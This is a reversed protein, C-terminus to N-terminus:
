FIVSFYSTTNNYSGTYDHSNKHEIIEASLKLTRALQLILKITAPSDVQKLSFAEGNLDKILKRSIEDNANAKEVDTYHTFDTSELVFINDKNKQLVKILKDFNRAKASYSLLIPAIKAKPFFKKIYNAEVGISHEGVFCDNEIKPGTKLIQGLLTHDIELEGFMTAIKADSAVFKQKCREFHDPGVVVFTEINPRAIQLQYYFNDLLPSATPLHHSTIGILPNKTKLKQQVNKEKGILNRYDSYQYNTNVAQVFSPIILLLLMLHVLIKRM